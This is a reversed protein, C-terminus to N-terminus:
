SSLQIFPDLTLMEKDRAYLSLKGPCFFFQAASRRPFRESQYFFLRSFSSLFSEGRSLFSTDTFNAPKPKAQGVKLKTKQFDKKKEKKKRKSAGM